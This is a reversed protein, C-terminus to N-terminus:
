PKNGAGGIYTIKYIFGKVFEAVYLSGDPGTKIDLPNAFGSAFTEVSSLYDGGATKVLQVRAIEGRSSTVNVAEFLPAPELTVDVERVGAAASTTSLAFGPAIM